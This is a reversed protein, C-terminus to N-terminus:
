NTRLSYEIPLSLTISDRAISAPMPPLPSVRLLLDLTAQDLIDHGSARKITVASVTGTRDVTFRVTVVGQQRAKRADAPYLKHRNLHASILMFYDAERKRARPDIGADANVAALQTPQPAAPAPESTAPQQARQEVPTEDAPSPRPAETALAETAVPEPLTLPKPAPPTDASPAQNRIVPRQSDRQASVAVSRDTVAPPLDVLVVPEPRLPIERDLGTLVLGVAGAHASLAVATALTWQGTTSRALRAATM